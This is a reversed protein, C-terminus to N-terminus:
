TIRRLESGFGRVIRVPPHRNHAASADDYEVEVNQGDDAPSARLQRRVCKLIKPNSFVTRGRRNVASAIEWSV